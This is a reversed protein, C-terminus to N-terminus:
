ESEPMFTASVPMHDSLEWAGQHTYGSGPVWSGNTFLYDLKRDHKTFTSDDLMSTSPAHTFHKPLNYSTSEIAPTYANYLPLLIDPEGPFNEFYSGEKHFPESGDMHFDDGDCKDIDCFDTISGPPVSNLDGGTVFLNQDLDIDGLVEVYQNIHEEKTDDTAFATAHINVAYFDKGSQALAPVKATLINRRLYFYQVLDDQDTRLRLQVRKADTLPYKSLIANGADVRGIGDSPIYDAKWMSAYCGYNLNTNDLLYKIQNLYGTRKSSLDVEQLLVIDPDMAILTDVVASLSRLISADDLIVKDGCADAFFEFRAIGFRINWTAVKFEGGDYAYVSEPPINSAEIMIADEQDGFETVFPDNCGIVFFLNITIMLRKM